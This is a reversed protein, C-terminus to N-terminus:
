ANDVTFKVRACSVIFRKLFHLMGPCVHGVYVNNGSRPIDLFVGNGEAFIHIRAINLPDLFREEPELIKRSDRGRDSPKHLCFVAIIIKDPFHLICFLSFM